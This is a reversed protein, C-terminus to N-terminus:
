AKPAEETKGAAGEEPKAEEKPKGEEELMGRRGEVTVYLSRGASELVNTVQAGMGMLMAVLQGRLGELGGKIGGVWRAGGMDFVRGEVRAGLLMLKQLGDQVAKEHYAPNVRRKPAPFEKTPALISLAAALHQTSVTPLTLLALPGSLLPDLTIASASASRKTKASTVATSWAQRSLGHTLAADHADDQATASTDAAPDTPHLGSEDFKPEWFEVVKLASAFIGTQVIQLKTAEGVQTVENESEKVLGSGKALDEDVRRLAAALERRIGSWETAKLNNHQFLLILPSSRLLSQYQRHLQSKRFEPPKHSPPQTPPYHSEPAAASTPPPTPTAALSAHRCSLCIFPRRSIARLPMRPPM